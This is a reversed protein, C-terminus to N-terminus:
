LNPVAQRPLDMGVMPYVDCDHRDPKFRTLTESTRADARKYLSASAGREVLKWRRDAKLFRDFPTDNRVLAATFGYQQQWAEIRGPDNQEAHVYDRLMQDGFLEC